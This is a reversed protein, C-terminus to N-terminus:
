GRPSRAGGGRQPPDRRARARQEGGGPPNRAVRAGARRTSTGACLSRNRQDRRRAVALRPGPLLGRHGRAHFGAAPPYRARAPPCGWSPVGARLPRSGTSSRRWRTPPRTAPLSTPAASTSRSNPPPATGPTARGRRCTASRRRTRPRRVTLAVGLRECLAACHREDGAAEERLGYNVHLATVAPAGTIEVAVHLLCTSDRGGSLLLVAPRGPLLLGAARVTCVLEGSM